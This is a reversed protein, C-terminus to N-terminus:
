KKLVSELQTQMNKAADAPTEKNNIAKSVEIQIIDSVQQYNPVVPRPVASNLGDVFNKDAFYPNAKLIDQDTYLAPITPAHGGVVANVKEGDKGALFKMFTWAEKKHTSYKNMAIMWGGLAAASRSDGKPLPAVAVQNVIKSQSQDNAAAFQYPWNRVFVAQGNNFANATQPEQFTNINKPVFSSNAIKVMETLGNISQPSNVVVKGNEDVIRGGYAYIFETANCVLGEYQDMQAAFGFQTGKQGKYKAATTMLQDWTQPVDSQPVIDKRYFLMGADIYLPLAWTKGNFKAGDLAGQNYQSMDYNDQQIFQDLPQTWGAQAFEAPWVVDINMVDISSDKANLQTAYTDHQSNSSNPLEKVNVKINPYKAEFAKVVEESGKTTDKGRSWTITVPKSSSSSDGQSSPKTSTTTSGGSNGCASLAMSLALVPIIGFKMSKLRKM